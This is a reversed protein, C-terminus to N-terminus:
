VSGGELGGEGRGREWERGMGVRRLGVGEGRDCGEGFWGVEGIEGVGEVGVVGM